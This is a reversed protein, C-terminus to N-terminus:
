RNRDERIDEVVSRAAPRGRFKVRYKAAEECIKGHVVESERQLIMRLQEQMSRHQLKALDSISKYVEDPVNRITLTKM